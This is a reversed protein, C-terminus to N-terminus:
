WSSNDLLRKEGELKKIDTIDQTVELTGLYEREKDRVPFYRIHILREKLEIWFEAVDRRGARFDDLIRNVIHISKEPHCQQVKRGIVARTRPFVREGSQNFYRVTDERDVFTIDVPLTDLIAQLEARSLVGTEFAVRGGGEPEPVPAEKEELPMRILEKLAEKRGKGLLPSM